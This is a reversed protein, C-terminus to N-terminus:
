VIDGLAFDIKANPHDEGGQAVIYNHLGRSKTATSTLTSFRNGNNIDLCKAM